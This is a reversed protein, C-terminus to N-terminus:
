LKPKSNGQSKLKEEGERSSDADRVVGIRLEKMMDIVYSYSLHSSDIFEKSADKGGVFLLVNRGGPHADLFRTVDYVAGFLM